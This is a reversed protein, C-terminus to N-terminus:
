VISIQALYNQYNCFIERLSDGGFKELVADMLVIALMAEGIVGAAPVVCVDSREVHALTEGKTLLDFSPLPKAMTPIPKIGVRVVIDEGNSMGGEIGGAQNTVHQWIGNKYSIIDHAQSGKLGAVTFGAGIEVAKAANISMMAQSIRGDLRRDWQVHSGLGIPIGSAVVEFCGGLSDGNKKAKDIADTMAREAKADTCRVPSSEVRNWDIHGEDQTCVEGISVTRSRVSIDLEDLFRRAVAGVAVRSATERASARELIPRVDKMGYKLVGPLDAHGPRLRTVPEVNAMTAAVSMDDRWNEWDKNRVLLTIPSGLTIGLRVGSLIEARDSEIQMRKGRGYGMQRRALDHAIQEEDLALGAPIGEVVTVLAQGHSEGATLFRLMSM